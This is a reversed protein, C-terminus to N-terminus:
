RARGRAHRLRSRDSVQPLKTEPGPRTLGPRHTADPRDRRSPHMLLDAIAAAIAQGTADEYFTFGPSPNVEFCFWEDDDTVRLDIGAVLLGMSRTLAVLREGLAGDIDTAVITVDAGTRGAYRYDTADSQIATAFWREGVVHVRVDIGEIWRQLQVPGTRVGSLREADSADLAGVISRIGSISKYVVRRHREMFEKAAVPDTTVLTPPVTFGAEAIAALQFPKTLNSRGVAPRNVVVADLFAAIALLCASAPAPRADPQPEPRLYIASITELPIRRGDVAIWGRPVPELSVDFDLGGLRGRDLHVVDAGRGRLTQLVDTVPPDDLAGWVVIV